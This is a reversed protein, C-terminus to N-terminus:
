ATWLRVPSYAAGSNRGSSRHYFVGIHKKNTIWCFNEKTHSQAWSMSKSWLMVHMLHSLWAKEDAKRRNCRSWINYLKPGWCFFVTYLKTENRIFKIFISGKLNRTAIILSIKKFALCWWLNQIMIHCWHWDWYPNWPPNRSILYWWNQQCPLSLSPNLKMLHSSLKMMM